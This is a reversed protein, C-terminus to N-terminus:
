PTDHLDRISREIEHLFSRASSRPSLLLFANEGERLVIAGLHEVVSRAVAGVPFADPHLDLPCVRELARRSAPGDIRLLCWADSQDSSYLLTDGDTTSTGDPTDSAADSATARTDTAPTPPAASVRAAVRELLTREPDPPRAGGNSTGDGSEDALTDGPHEFLVYLRDPQLGLLREGAATVRSDGTAPLAVGFARALHDRVREDPLAITVLARDTIERLEIAGAALGLPPTAHLAARAGGGDAPSTGEPEAM